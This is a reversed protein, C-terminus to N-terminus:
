RIRQRQAVPKTGSAFHFHFGGDASWGVEFRVRESGPGLLRLGAGVGGRARKMTMEPSDSWAIGADTFVAFDLGMRLAFKWIDWRQLPLINVSYEITGLLQNKGYLVR